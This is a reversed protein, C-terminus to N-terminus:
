PSVGPHRKRMHRLMNDKRSFKEVCGNVLCKVDAKGVAAHKAQIHRKLDAEFGFPKQPCGEYPCRSRKEHIRNIHKSRARNSPDRRKVMSM